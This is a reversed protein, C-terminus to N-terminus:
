SFLRKKKRNKVDLERSLSMTRMFEGRSGSGVSVGPPGGGFTGGFSLKRESPVHASAAARGTSYRRSYHAGASAAALQEKSDQFSSRRSGPLSKSYDKGLQHVELTQMQIESQTSGRRSPAVSSWNPHLLYRSEDLSDVDDSISRQFRSGDTSGGYRCSSLSVEDISSQSTTTSRRRLRGPGSGITPGSGRQHNPDELRYWVAVDDLCAKQLKVSCEGLFIPESHPLLDYLVIEIKRDLLNDSFVDQFTITANWIPNLSPTSVETQAVHSENTKPLLKISAYAEPYMGYGLSEDREPLDDAAMVSVVLENREGHYYVHVQVRGSVLKSKAIQEQLFSFCLSPYCNIKGNWHKYTQTQTRGSALTHVNTDPLARTSNCSNNSYTAGMNMGMGGEDLLECMKFDTAHEVLLEATDGTRDMIACVEEFSRDTLSTGCWELIKDGQQLGGKEAPGGPVTWVIYAFLRGDTGTKGGVVRMGFGRTRHAKDSPDRRLTVSRKAACLPGADADHIVIKIGEGDLSTQRKPAELDELAPCQYVSINASNQATKDKLASIDPLQSGRRKHRRDDDVILGAAKMEAMSTHDDAGFDNGDAMIKMSSRRSTSIKESDDPALKVSQMANVLVGPAYVDYASKRRPMPPPLNLGAEALNTDSSMTKFEDDYSRQRSMKTSPRRSFVRPTGIEMDMKRGPPSSSRSPAASHGKRWDMENKPNQVGKLKELEKLSAPSVDSHRRLEPSRPPALATGKGDDLHQNFGLKIDSHRRQLTEMVPVELVSDTSEQPICIRSAMKRRCVSCRWLDLDDSDQLKSYSACDECVKQDCEVCTKKFDNPKFSKLCIRCSGSRTNFKNSSESSPKEAALDKYPDDGAHPSSESTDPVLSPRPSMKNVRDQATLLSTSLTQKLKGFASGTNEMSPQQHSAEDTAVMKKMFSM